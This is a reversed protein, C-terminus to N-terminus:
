VRGTAPDRRAAHRFRMVVVETEAVRYDILYPYPTAVLRRVGSRSTNRGAQPHAELLGVLEL